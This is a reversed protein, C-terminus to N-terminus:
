PDAKSQRKYEIGKNTYPEAHTSIPIPFCGFRLLPNQLFYLAFIWRSIMDIPMNLYAINYYARRSYSSVGTSYHSKIATAIYFCQNGGTRPDHAAWTGKTIVRGEEREDETEIM